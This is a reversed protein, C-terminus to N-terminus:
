KYLKSQLKEALNLNGSVQLGCQLALNYQKTLLLILFSKSSGTITAAVRFLPQTSLTINDDVSLNIFYILKPHTIIIKTSFGNSDM